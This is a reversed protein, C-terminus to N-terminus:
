FRQPQTITIQRLLEKKQEFLRETGERKKKKKTPSLMKHRRLEIVNYPAELMEVTLVLKGQFFQCGTWDALSNYNKLIQKKKKQRTQQKKATLFSLM